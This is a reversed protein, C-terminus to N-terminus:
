ELGNLLEYVTLKYNVEVPTSKTMRPKVIITGADVYDEQAVNTDVEFNTLDTPADDSLTFTYNTTEWATVYQWKSEEENWIQIRWEIIVTGDTDLKTGMTFKFKTEDFKSQQWMKFGGVYKRGSYANDAAAGSIVDGWYAYMSNGGSTADKVGSVFLVGSSTTAINASVDKAGLRLSPIYSSGTFEVDVYTGIGYSGNLAFFGGDEHVTNTFSNSSGKTTTMTLDYCGEGTKAYTTKHAVDEATRTYPMSCKFTTYEGSEKLSSMLVINADEYTLGLTTLPVAANHLVVWEGEVKNSLVAHFVVNGGKDKLTGVTLKYETTPNDIMSQMRFGAMDYGLNTIGNATTTNTTNGILLTEGLICVNPGILANDDDVATGNYLLLGKLGTRDTKNITDVVTDGDEGTARQYAFRGNIEDALLRIMPMNNGTFEVDVYTNVGYAGAFGVYGQNLTAIKDIYGTGYGDSRVSVSGDANYKVWETEGSDARANQALTYQTADTYVPVDIELTKAGGLTATFKTEGFAVPSVNWDAASVTAVSESAVKTTWHMQSSLDINEKGEAKTLTLGIADNEVNGVYTGNYSLASSGYVFDFGTTIYSDLLTENAILKNKEALQEANSEDFANTYIKNQALNAVEFVSRVNDNSTAYVYGSATKEFGIGFWERVYNEQKLTTVAKEVIWENGSQKPQLNEEVIPAFEITGAEKAAQLLTVYDEEDNDTLSIDAKALYDYPVILMGYNKGAQADYDNVTYAFKLGSVTDLYLSAGSKMVLNADAAGASVNGLAGGACLALCAAASVMLMKKKAVRKM